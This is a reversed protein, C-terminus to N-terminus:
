PQNFILWANTIDTLRTMGRWLVTPGPDGDCKRGLFGGLRAIWRVAQHITPPRAPSERTKHIYAHLARWEAEELITTVPGDPTRRAIQSLAFIRWAVVMDLALVRTLRQASELQRAEARCGSKLVKHFVEIQWRKAYWGVKEMALAATDTEM